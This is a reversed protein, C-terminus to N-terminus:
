GPVILEAHKGQRSVVRCLEEASGLAVRRLGLAPPDKSVDCTGKNPVACVAACFGRRASGEQWVQVYSQLLHLDMHQALTSCARESGYCVSLLTPMLVQAAGRGLRVCADDCRELPALVGPPALL